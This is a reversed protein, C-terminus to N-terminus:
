SQGVPGAIARLRNMADVEAKLDKGRYLYARLDALSVVAMGAGTLADVAIQGVLDAETGSLMVSEGLAAMSLATPGLHLRVRERVHHAIMDRLDEPAM